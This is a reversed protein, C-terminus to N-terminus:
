AEKRIFGLYMGPAKVMQGNIFLYVPLLCNTTKVRQYINCVTEFDRPDAIYFFLIEPKKDQNYWQIEHGTEQQIYNNDVCVPKLVQVLYPLGKQLKKALGRKEKQWLQNLSQVIM